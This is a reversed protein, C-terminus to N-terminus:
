WGKPSGIEHWKALVSITSEDTDIVVFLLLHNMQNTTSRFNFRQLKRMTRLFLSKGDGVKTYSGSVIEIQKSINVHCVKHDEIEIPISVINIRTM